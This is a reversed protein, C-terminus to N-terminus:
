KGFSAPAPTGMVVQHAERLLVKAIIQDSWDIRDIQALKKEVIRIGEALAARADNTQGLQYQTMALMANAQVTRAPADPQAVVKELWPRAASFHGQRYEVMGKVLQFYPWAENTAGVQVALEAMKAIKEVRDAPPPLILCDTAIREAIVPDATAGFHDLARGCHKRYGEMDGVQILLPALRHYAIHNTPDTTVSKNLNRVAAQWEGRRGFVEGLTNYIVSGEPITLPVDAMVEEAKDFQGQSMLRGATTFRDSVWAMDRMRKELALGKEAQERLEAQRKEAEVARERAVRERQLAAREQIFLYLSLGLGLVLAVIVATSGVFVAQNRRAWKQFRYIGSPPRAEIPENALFRHVDLALGSASEFRRTRDKELAKMVIWDLDGQILHVLKPPEAGQRKAVATLDADLM